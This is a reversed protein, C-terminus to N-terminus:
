NSTKELSDTATRIGYDLWIKVIYNVTNQRLAQLAKLRIELTHKDGPSTKLM